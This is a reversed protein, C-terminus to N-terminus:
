LDGWLREGGALYKEIYIKPIRLLISTLGVFLLENTFICQM